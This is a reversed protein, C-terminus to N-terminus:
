TVSTAENQSFGSSASFQGSDLAALLTMTKFISGPAYQGQVARNILPACPDTSIKQWYEGGVTMHPNDSAPTMDGIKNDDYYPRNVMALIQGTHPDEVVISGVETGDCTQSVGADDQFVKDVQNQIRVDISLYLDQGYIPNHLLQNWYQNSADDFTAPPVNGALEDNYYREIGSAGYIPSYYGLFSAISPYKNTAYERRWGCPSAPDRVSWALPTGNRDYITGRQPTQSAICPKHSQYDNEFQGPGPPSTPWFVQWYVLFGSVVVFLVVFFNLLRRIQLEIAM